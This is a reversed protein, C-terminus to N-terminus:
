KTINYILSLLHIFFLLFNYYVYCTKSSSDAVFLFRFLFLQLVPLSFFMIVAVSNNDVSGNCFRKIRSSRSCAFSILFNITYLIYTYTLTVTDQTRHKSNIAHYTDQKRNILVFRRSSTLTALIINNNILTSSKLVVFIKYSHTPTPTHGEGTILVVLGTYLATYHLM